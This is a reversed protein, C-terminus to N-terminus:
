QCLHYPRLDDPPDWRDSFVVHSDEKQAMAHGERRVLSVLDTCKVLQTRHCCAMLHVYERERVVGAVQLM